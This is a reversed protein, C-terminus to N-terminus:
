GGAGGGGAGPTGPLPTGAGPTGAGERGLPCRAITEYRPQEGAVGSVPLESRVLALESVEWPTGEFGDLAEVYPLLDPRTARPGRTRALTLHPRFRRHEGMAVGARRAAADTREALLRLTDIGGAAGAWLARDDFRGGGHVRLRFGETRGAARGLRRVLEPLVAGDVEGLFALTFHWGAVETWRLAGAGPLGGLERVAGALEAVASPPPLVAAFLRM